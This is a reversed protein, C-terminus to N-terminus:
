HGEAPEAELDIGLYEAVERAHDPDMLALLEVLRARDEPLLPTEEM